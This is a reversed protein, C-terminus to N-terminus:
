PHFDKIHTASLFKWLKYGKVLVKTSAHSPSSAFIEMSLHFTYFSVYLHVAVMNLSPNGLERFHHPFVMGVFELEHNSFMISGDFWWLVLIIAKM